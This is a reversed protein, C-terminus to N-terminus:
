QVARITESLGDIVTDSITSPQNRVSTFHEAWRKLIQMKEILLTRGDASLLPAFGEVPPGNVAKTTAFFNKWKNQDEYGQIEEANYTMWADQMEWMRQQVLRHSRFFATKNAATFRDVCDEHLQNKKVLLANIAADNDDFWDQHPQRARGLVDLATSQITDSL